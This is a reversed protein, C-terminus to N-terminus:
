KNDYKRIIKGDFLKEFDELTGQTLLDKQCVYNMTKNTWNFSLYYFEEYDYVTKVSKFKKGMTSSETVCIISEDEIYIRKPTIIKKTKKDTQIGIRFLIMGGVFVICYACFIPYFSRLFTMIMLIFPWVMIFAGVLIVQVFTIYKRFFFKDSAGTLYGNFDIMQKLSRQKLEFLNFM